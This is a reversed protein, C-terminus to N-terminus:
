RNVHYLGTVNALLQLNERKMDLKMGVSHTVGAPSKITVPRETEAYERDQDFSIKDTTLELNREPRWIRVNDRLVINKTNNLFIAKDARAHWTLGDRGFFIFYAMKIHVADSTKFHELYEGNFQYDIQGDDRYVTSLSQELFFDPNETEEPIEVPINKNTYQQYKATGFIVVGVVIVSSIIVIFIRRFRTV